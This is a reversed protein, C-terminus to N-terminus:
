DAETGEYDPGKTARDFVRNFADLLITTGSGLVALYDGAGLRDRAVLMANDLELSIHVKTPAVGSKILGRRLKEASEGPQDGRRLHADEYCIFEDFGSAAAAARADYDADPRNGAAAFVCIRKQNERKGGIAVLIAKIASANAGYEILVEFPYGSLFIMRGPEGPQTMKCARLGNAIESLELGMGHALGAAALANATNGRHRGEMTIPIESIAVVPARSGPAVFEVTEATANGSLVVAAGGREVLKTVDPSNKDMSFGIVREMAFESVLARTRPDDLNLVVAKDASDVVKRKVEVMDELTEVGDIGIQEDMVNLFAAVDCHDLYIGRKIIGGRATELVAANVDPDSLVVKAGPAGAVDGKRIWNDDIIVGDTSAVGPSYGATKLIRALMLCTTTKGKSGTIMATPIRGDSGDSFLADVMPSIVDRDPDANWHPRLGPARNIECVGGGTERWSRSIDTTLFDVGAVRLGIKRSAREAMLKNDTHIINTVDEATGGTHINSTKKLWVRRGKEPVDSLKLRQDAVLSVVADDVEILCRLRSFGSGRNPDANTKEILATVSTLGDGVVSAPILRAAAVFRGDVVLLRHGDGAFHTQMLMPRGETAFRQAIPLLSSEDAIGPWVDAGKGGDVPKAVLPFGISQAARLADEPSSVEDFKGVPVGAQRFAQLCSFKDRSLNGAIWSESGFRDERFSRATVGHGVVIFRGFERRWPIGRRDIERAMERTVQDVAHIRCIHLIEDIAARMQDPGNVRGEITAHVLAVAATAATPAFRPDGYAYHLTATGGQADVSVGSIPPAIDHYDRLSRAIWHIVEVVASDEASESVGPLRTPLLRVLHEFVRTPVDAANSLDIEAVFVPHESWANNHFKQRLSVIKPM